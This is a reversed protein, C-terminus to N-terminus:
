QLCGSTADSFKTRAITTQGGYLAESKYGWSFVNALRSGIGFVPLRTSMRWVKKLLINKM